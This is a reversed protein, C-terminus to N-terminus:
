FTKESSSQQHLEYDQLPMTLSTSADTFYIYKPAKGSIDVECPLWQFNRSYPKSGPQDSSLTSRLKAEDEPPIPVVESEPYHDLFNELTLRGSSLIKTRGYVLPFLSPHVLDLVKDDSDPHWDKQNAPVDELPRVSTKLAEKVGVPVALDSKVVDGRYVSVLGGSEEYIRAKHKVEDICWDAM